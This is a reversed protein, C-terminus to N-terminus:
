NTKLIDNEPEVNEKIFLNIFVFCCIGIMISVDALNFIGTKLLGLDIHFFDTVSGYVVRDYINGLGGGIICALCIAKFGSINKAKMTYLLLGILILLPLICLFIVRYIEAFSSGAGLFAGNNEVNTLIFHKDIIEILEKEAVNERVLSKSIQDCGVNTIIVLLILFKSVSRNIILKSM